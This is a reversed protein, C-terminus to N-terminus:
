TAWTSANGGEDTTVSCVSAGGCASLQVTGPASWGVTAGPVPTVGDSTVVRVSIPIISPVGVTVPPGSGSISLIKDTSAAGYTLAGSISTSAGSVPDSIAINQTGDPHPSAALTMQTASVALQTASTAGIAAAMGTGFGTGQVVIPAGTVPIRAPSISDAYLLHAHFHYDPRGDGRVDSIGVLFNGSAN